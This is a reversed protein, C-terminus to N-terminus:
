TRPLPSGVRHLTGEPDVYGFERLGYPTDAPATLRGPAGAAAWEAHLADADSVYLYVVAGTRAPDHEAWETLHLEVAGRGVFGYRDGDDGGGDGEGGDGEYPEATFGLLRYRALAAALDRVPVVPAVRDFSVAATRAAPDTM